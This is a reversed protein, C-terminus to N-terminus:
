APAEGPQEPCISRWWSEEPGSLNLYRAMDPIKARDTRYEVALRLRGNVVDVAHLNIWDQSADERIQAYRPKFDELDRWDESRQGNIEETWAISTWAPLECNRAQAWISMLETLRAIGADLSPSGAGPRSWIGSRGSKHEGLRRSRDEADWDLHRSWHDAPMDSMHGWGRSELAWSGHYPVLVGEAILYDALDDNNSDQEYVRLPMGERPEVGLDALERMSGVGLALLQTTRWNNFDAWILPPTAGEESM